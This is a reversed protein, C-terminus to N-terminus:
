FSTKFKVRYFLILSMISALLIPIVFPFEPVAVQKDTFIWGTGNYQWTKYDNYTDTLPPSKDWTTPSDNLANTDLNNGYIDPYASNISITNNVNSWNPQMNNLQVIMDHESELTSNYDFYKSEGNSGSLHLSGLPIDALNPNYIRVWQTGNKSNLEVQIIALYKTTNPSQLGLDPYLTFSYTYGPSIGISVKYKENSETQFTGISGYAFCVAPLVSGHKEDFVLSDNNGHLSKFEPSEVVLKKEVTPVVLDRIQSKDISTNNKLHPNNNLVFQLLQEDSFFPPSGCSTYSLIDKIESPLNNPGIRFVKSQYPEANVTNTCFVLIMMSMAFTVIISLHITKM